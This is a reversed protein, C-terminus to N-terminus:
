GLEFMYFKIAINVEETKLRFYGKQAIKTWFSLVTLKLQFKTGLSVSIRLIRRHHESKRNEVMFVFWFQDNLTM